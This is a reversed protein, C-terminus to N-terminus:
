IQMPFNNKYHFINDLIHFTGINDEKRILSIWLHKNICIGLFKVSDEKYNRVLNKNKLTNDYQITKNTFSMFHSKNTEMNKNNHYYKQILYTLIFSKNNNYNDKFYGNNLLIVCVAKINKVGEINKM